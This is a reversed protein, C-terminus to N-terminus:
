WEEPLLSRLQLEMYVPELTSAEQDYIANLREAIHDNHHAAIYARLAAVYLESRSLGLRVALRDAAVFLHGPVSLSIRM